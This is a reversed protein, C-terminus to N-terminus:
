VPPRLYILNKYFFNFSDSHLYPEDNILLKAIPFTKLFTVKLSQEELFSTIEKKHELLAYVININEIEDKNQLLLPKEQKPSTFSFIEGRRGDFLVTKYENNKPMSDFIATLSPIARIYINKKHFTLGLFLATTLRLSSFSGPGTGITWYKFNNFALKNKKLVEDIWPLISHADMGKLPRSDEFLTNNEGYEGVAINLLSSSSDIAIALSM